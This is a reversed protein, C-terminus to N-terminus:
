SEERMKPFTRYLTARSVGVMVAIRAVTLAPNKLMTEAMTKQEDNLAPPRGGTRGRDRAARLGAMTREAILAREFEAVGALVDYLLKGTPTATDVGQTIVHLHVGRTKLDDAVQALELTSRAM